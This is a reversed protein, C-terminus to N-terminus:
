KTGSRDFYVSNVRNDSLTGPRDIDHEYITFQGTAPDFRHLGSTHTGLWLAGERDETLELYYLTRSQPNPKYSTFRETAADFRNLGDWTAAWLTGSHDVVLRSFIDNSLSYPDAPNHKYTKFQGTRRDLRLLGQDYTGVWLDGSRDGHITIANIVGGHGTIRHSTYRGAQRDIRNLGESTGMWLIGQHLSRVM